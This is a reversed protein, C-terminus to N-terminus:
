RVSRILVKINLTVLTNVMFTYFQLLHMPTAQRRACSEQETTLSLLERSPGCLWRSEVRWQVAEMSLRLASAPVSSFPLYRVCSTSSSFTAALLVLLLLNFTNVQTDSHKLMWIFCKSVSYFAHVCFLICVRTCAWTASIHHALPPLLCVTEISEKQVCPSDITQTVNWWWISHWWLDLTIQLSSPM